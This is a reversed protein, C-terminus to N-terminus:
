SELSYTAITLKQLDIQGLGRQHAENLFAIREPQLDFLTAGFSDIAVPDVGAVVTKKSVVDALSGGSPGNRVLMRYADLITLDPKIRTNLDTIKIDFQRHFTGRNGGLYGMLNKMGLSVGSISHHKAVPLNIVRDAELVEEYLEWSKILEGEPFAVRKFKRDYVYHVDAGAEEAAKEIGSRMYCRRPENLTRDFVKVKKAGAELCLRVVEAVLEPNTTAAQEPVRDWSINPKLVVVDGSKVFRSIGGLKEVAQRVLEAPNGEKTVVLDPYSSQGFTFPVEPLFTCAAAFGATTKLFDRRQM